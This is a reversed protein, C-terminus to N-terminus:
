DYQGRDVALGGCRHVHAWARARLHRDDTRTLLTSLSQETETSRKPVYNM